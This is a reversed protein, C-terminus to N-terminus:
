FELEQLHDPVVGGHGDAMVAAVTGLPVLVRHGSRRPPTAPPMVQVRATVQLTECAGILFHKPHIIPLHKIILNILNPNM